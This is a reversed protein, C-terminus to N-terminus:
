NYKQKNECFFSNCLIDTATLKYTYIHSHTHKQKDEGLKSIEGM